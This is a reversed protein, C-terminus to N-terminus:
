GLQKLPQIISHKGSQNLLNSGIKATTLGINKIGLKYYMIVAVYMVDTIQLVVSCLHGCKLKSVMIHNITNKDLYVLKKGDQIYRYM